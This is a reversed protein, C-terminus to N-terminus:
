DKGVDMAGSDGHWGRDEARQVQGSFTPTKNQHTPALTRAMALAHVGCLPLESRQALVLQGVQAHAAAFQGIPQTPTVRRRLAPADVFSQLVSFSLVGECGLSALFFPM